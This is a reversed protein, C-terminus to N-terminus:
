DSINSDTFFEVYFDSLAKKNNGLKMYNRNNIEIFFIYDKVTAIQTNNENYLLDRSIGTLPINFKIVKLYKVSDMATYYKEILNKDTTTYLKGNGPNRISIKEISENKLISTFSTILFMSSIVIILLLLLIKSKKLKM